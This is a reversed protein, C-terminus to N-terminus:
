PQVSRGVAREFVVEGGLITADVALDFLDEGSRERPDASLVAFDGLKGATVSGKDQEEFISRAAWLTWTKLAEDFTLADGRPLVGGHEPSAMLSAIGALASFEPVTGTSDSTAVPEIGAEICARLLRRPRGGGRTSRTVAIGIGLQRIRRIQEVDDLFGVHEFRHRLPRPERAQAEAIATMAMRLGGRTVIHLIAQLSHRQAMTMVATLEAQTWKLDEVQTGLGDSGTGDVFIKIGGFRLRDDGFGPRWGTEILAEISTTMPIRPYFRVRVPLEGSAHLEQDAAINGGSSPVTAVSTIGKEVFLQRARTRIADKVEAIPYAEAAYLLDAIETAIGTPAGAADRHVVTGVRPRGDRWTLRKEDAADWLRLQKFAASNLSVVHLGAFVMIPHATSLADLELRTPMRKETVDSALAYSGRGIVWRGPATTAIRTRLADFITQLSTHPPTHVPVQYAAAITAMELHVHADIFGPVVTKGGADYERAGAALARVEATTGAAVIRGARVLVAEAAPRTEDLTVIRANVIALDSRDAISRGGRDGAAFQPVLAAAESTAFAAGLASARTLFTRRHV